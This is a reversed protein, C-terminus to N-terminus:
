TARRCASRGTSCTTSRPTSAPSKTSWSATSRRSPAFLRNAEIAARLYAVVIEPYKKAYDARGAHRPLHARQGARRRLDQARLGQVPVPRRVARLRRARRDQGGALAPRGSRAGAHPHQRRTEPDWGKRRSRACCCATRPPPSRCRSRRARSTPSRSCRRTRGARRHRQRQRRQHGLAGVPVREEQRGEPVGRRQALRSLRGDRRLRAQRGGDRQDAARRVHLQAVRHRVAVDKYKGDHPLYKELLHLERILLGGTACNITTDQTGIAVRITEAQSPGFMAVTVAVVAASLRLSSFDIM